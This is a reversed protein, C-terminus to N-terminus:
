TNAKKGAPSEFMKFAVTRHVTAPEIVLFSRFDVVGHLHKDVQMANNIKMFETAVM